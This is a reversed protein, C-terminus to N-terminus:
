EVAGARRKDVVYSPLPNATMEKRRRQVRYVDMALYVASRMSQASAIGQGVIDFATGHDPSTRVVPLGATFNVGDDFCLAKFATLGQDHYMALVADYDKMASSGFFGDAPFPGFALVNENKAQQIAPAIIENEEQGLKGNEGAHPNLGFVAIKPKIIGFDNKLSKELALIKNFIKEKTLTTSVDKLPIHSTVLAVRLSSGVMMMLAEDMGAMDALYETHGPFKFGSKAMAEKSIPATVLVDVKGAALDKTAAELSLFAFKGGAETISGLEFPIEENWVNVVNVKGAVADEASKCSQYNFDHENIAKKHYSLTKTSGYIIPTCDHLIAADKFAKIIVEPGIGNIDGISIGIRIPNKEIEKEM